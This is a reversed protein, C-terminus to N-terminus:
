CNDNEHKAGKPIYITIKTGVGVESRIDVKARMQKEFRLVMNQLGTSDRKGCKIQEWVDEADFGVGDDAIQIVWNKEESYTKIYVTGGERRREYIGHEIANEVIPQLGLPIIDFDQEEIDYSVKLKKGFRMKEINM